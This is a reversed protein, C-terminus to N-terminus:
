MIWCFECTDTWHKYVIGQEIYKYQM